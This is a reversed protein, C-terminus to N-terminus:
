EEASNVSSIIYLYLIDLSSPLSEKFAIIKRGTNGKQLSFNLDRGGFESNNIAGCEGVNM